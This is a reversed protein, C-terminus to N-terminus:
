YLLFRDYKQKDEFNQEQFKEFNRRIEPDEMEQDFM